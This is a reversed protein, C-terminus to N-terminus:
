RWGVWVAVGVAALAALLALWLAGGRPEEEPVFVDTSRQGFTDENGAMPSALAMSPNTKGGEDPPRREATVSRDLPTEEGFIGAAPATPASDMTPVTGSSAAAADPSREPQPPPDSVEDRSAVVHENTDPDFAAPETIAGAAGFVGSGESAGSDESDSLTVAQDAYPAM